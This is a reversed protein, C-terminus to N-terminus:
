REEILFSSSEGLVLNGVLYGGNANLAVFGDPIPIDDKTLLELKNDRILLNIPIEEANESAIYVNEIIINHPDITEAALQFTLGALVLLLSLNKM